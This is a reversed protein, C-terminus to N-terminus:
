KALKISATGQATTVKVVYIGKPAGSLDASSTASTAVCAGSLSYVDIRRIESGATVNLMGDSLSAKVWGDAGEANIEDVGTTAAVTFYSPNSLQQLSGSANRYFVVAAYRTGVSLASPTGLKVNTEHAWSGAQIFYTPTTLRDLNYGSLDENYFLIYLPASYYGSSCYVDYNMRIDDLVVANPNVISFGNSPMSLVAGSPASEVTVQIPTNLIEMTNMDVYAMYYTKGAEVSGQAISIASPLQMTENKRLDIVLTPGVAVLQMDSNIFGLNIEQMIEMNSNNVATASVEFMRGVYIPTKLEFDVIEISASEENETTYTGDSNKNLLVYNATGVPAIARTYTAGRDTSAVPYVKYTGAGLTSPIAASIQRLGSGNPWNSVNTYVATAVTEDSNYDCFQMAVRVSAAEDGNNAFFGSITLSGDAVAPTMTETIALQFPTPTAPTGDSPKAGLIAGQNQNYGAPSGGIGQSDPDLATILFNGDSMGGWGWNLHFYGNGAYGDVIFSHGGYDNRGSYQVPGVNKLNNYIMEEWTDIDYFTRSYFRTNSDYGFYRKLADAVYATVAGSEPGYSMDVSYGCAKMLTAVAQANASTYGSGYTDLMDDWAFNVTSFDMSMTVNTYPDSSGTKAFDTYKKWTYSNSGTGKAPYNHYKMLQAMATAVCGTAAQSTQGNYTIEPTYLNYPSGQNWKTACLPAIAAWSARNREANNKAIGNTIANANSERKAAWAIEEAYNELWGRMNEPMEDPNITGSDSYGLVPMAVDDAALIMYGKGGDNDFIYYAPQKDATYGTKVLRTQSTAAAAKAPSGSGARQLAEEPTLTRAWAPIAILVSALLLQHKM